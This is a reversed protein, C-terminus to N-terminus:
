RGNILHRNERLLKKLERASDIIIRREYESCDRFLSDFDAGVVSDNNNICEGLLVDATVKLENAVDVLMELSPTKQGNEVMSLYSPSKGIMEALVQQSLKQQRRIRRIRKGIIHYNLSM